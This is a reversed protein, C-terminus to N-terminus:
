NKCPGEHCRCGMRGIFETQCRRVSLHLHGEHQGILTLRDIVKGEFTFRHDIGGLESQLQFGIGILFIRCLPSGTSGTGTLCVQLTTESNNGLIGTSEILGPLRDPALCAVDAVM